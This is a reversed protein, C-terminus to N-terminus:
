KKYYLLILHINGYVYLPSPLVDGKRETWSLDWTFSLMKWFKPWFLLFHFYYCWWFCQILGDCLSIWVGETVKKRVYVMEGRTISNLFTKKKGGHDEDAVGCFIRISFYRHLFQAPWVICSWGFDIAGWGIVNNSRSEELM